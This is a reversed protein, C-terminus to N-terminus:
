SLRDTPAPRTGKCRPYNACGWFAAGTSRNKRQVMDGACVPCTFEAHSANSSPLTPEVQTKWVASKGAASTQVGRVLELLQEGSILEINKGEAFAAAGRTFDGVCVIKVADARHHDVLGWMERVVAPKVQRNRWQKCQVLETRGSKRLVLDIGGDGGGLGTEEVLYGQRRFAEGVLMEFERWSMTTLSDISTQRELLSRRKQTKLFSVFAGAWCLVLFLFALPSFLGGLDRVFLFAAIGLAASIPWPLESLEELLGKNRRAM